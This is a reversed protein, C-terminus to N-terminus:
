GGTPAPERLRALRRRVVQIREQVYHRIRRPERRFTSPSWRTGEDALAESQIEGYIRDLASAIREASLPDALAEAWRERYRRWWRPAHLLRYILYNDEGRGVRFADAPFREGNPIRGLTGDCDWPSIQWRGSEPRILAYNQVSGDTHSMFEVGIWWRLCAEVDIVGDITAEFETSDPLSIAYILSELDGFDDDHPFRKEYGQALFRKRRGTAPDILGLTGSEGVAYYIAGPVAGRRAFWGPGVSELATYLGLDEGNMTLWVHWAQPVPVDLGAFLELALRGRLLSPDRYAANLHLEAHGHFPQEPPFWLDYSPKRHWRSYRGRYGIWIPLSEAEIRLTAPFCRSTGEHNRLWRLDAPDMALEYVPVPVKV